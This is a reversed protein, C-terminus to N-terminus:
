EASKLAQEYPEIRLVDIDYTVSNLTGYYITEDIFSVYAINGMVPYVFGCQSPQVFRIRMSIQKLTIPFTAFHCRLKRQKNIADVFRGTLQVIFKRASPIDMSWTAEFELTLSSTRGKEKESEKGSKSVLKIQPNNTNDFYCDLFQEVARPLHFCSIEYSTEIQNSYSDAMECSTGMLESPIDIVEVKTEVTASSCNVTEALLWCPIVLLCTFLKIIITKM